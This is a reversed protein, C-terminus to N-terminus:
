GEGNGRIEDVMGFLEHLRTANEANPRSVGQEWLTYATLSCGVKVCVESKTMSANLRAEKMKM